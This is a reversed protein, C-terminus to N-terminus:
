TLTSILDACVPKRTASQNTPTMADAIDAAAAHSALANRPLYGSITGPKRTPGAIPTAPAARTAPANQAHSPSTCSGPTRAAWAASIAARVAAWCACSLCRAASATSASASADRSRSVSRTAMLSLIM